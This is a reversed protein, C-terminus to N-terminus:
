DEMVKTMWSEYKEDQRKTYAAWKEDFSAGRQESKRIQKELWADQSELAGELSNKKNKSACGSASLSLVALGFFITSVRNM